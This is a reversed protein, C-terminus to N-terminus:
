SRRSTTKPDGSQVWSFEAKVRHTQNGTAAVSGTLPSAATGEAVTQVVNGDVTVNGKLTAISGGFNTFTATWSVNASADCSADFTVTHAQAAAPLILVALLGVLALLPARFLSKKHM